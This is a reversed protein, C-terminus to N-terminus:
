AINMTGDSAIMTPREKRDGRWTRRTATMMSIAESSIIIKASNKPMSTLPARRQIEMPVKEIWGDSNMFGAKTMTQAHSKASRARWGSIGPLRKAMMVKPMTAASRIAWGSKPWVIRVDTTQPPMNKMAPM